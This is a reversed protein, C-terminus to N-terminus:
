IEFKEGKDLDMSATSADQYSDNLFSENFTNSRAIASSM